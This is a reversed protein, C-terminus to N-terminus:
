FGSEIVEPQALVTASVQVPDGVSVEASDTYSVTVGLSHGSGAKTTATDEAAGMGGATGLPALDSGNVQFALSNVDYGAHNVAVGSLSWVVNGDYANATAEYEGTEAGEADLVPEAEHAEVIVARESVFSGDESISLLGPQIDGGGQGTLAIQSSNFVGPVYGTWQLLAQAPSETEVAAAAGSLLVSMVTAAVLTKKNM